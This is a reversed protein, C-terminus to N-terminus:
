GRGKGGKGGMRPPPLADTQEDGVSASQVDEDSVHDKEESLEDSM